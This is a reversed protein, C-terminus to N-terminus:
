TGIMSLLAILITNLLLRPYNIENWVRSYNEFHPDFATIATLTRWNGDWKILPDTQVNPNGPDAFSSQTLGKRVLALQHTTGDPLPVVYMPYDRDRYTFTVPSVPLIGSDVAAVQQPTKISLTASRVLPSLLAAGAVVALFTMGFSKTRDKPRQRTGNRSRRRRLVGLVGPASGLERAGGLGGASTAM